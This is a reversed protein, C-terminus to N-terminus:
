TRQFHAQIRAALEENVGQVEMLESVAARAVGRASGFRALIAKKRRPGIGSIEDLPNQAIAATRKQRHAGIVFRHAEDRLRQLFYAVPDKAEFRFPPKGIQHYIERGADRDVGKAMAVLHLQDDLGMEKAIEAVVALQQEGGDIIILDPWIVDTDNRSRKGMDIVNGEEDVQPPLDDPVDKPPLLKAFRRSFVERMMAFDDGGKANKITWKRYQGKEFGDPGAVVMAGVAHAGQIHSNDYIEIRNPTTELHFADAIGDLLKTQTGSEALKRALSERANNTAHAIIERKEGRQPCRLEVASSAKLSLADAL